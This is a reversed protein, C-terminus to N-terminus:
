AAIDTEGSNFVFRNRGREKAVYLSKDARAFWEEISQSHAFRAVGLSASSNWKKLAMECDARLREVVETAEDESCRRILIAFEEGGVRGCFDYSRISNQISSAAAVLAQDGEDHGHTDNIKKFFDLDCLVLWDPAIEVNEPYEISRLNRDFARRNWLGTLIDHDREKATEFLLTLRRSLEIDVIVPTLLFLYYLNGGQSAVLAAAFAAPALSILKSYTADWRLQAVERPTHAGGLVLNVDVALIDVCEGAAIMAFTAFLGWSSLLQHSGLVQYFTAVSVCTHTFGLGLVNVGVLYPALPRQLRQAGYSLMSCIVALGPIGAIILLDPLRTSPNTELSDSLRYSKISVLYTALCIVIFFWSPGFSVHNNLSLMLASIGVLPFLTLVTLMHLQAAQNLESFQAFAWPEGRDVRILARFLRRSTRWIDSLTKM